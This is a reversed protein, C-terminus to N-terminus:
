YSWTGKYGLQLLYTSINNIKDKYKEYIIKREHYQNQIRELQKKYAPNINDKYKKIYMELNIIGKDNIDYINIENPPLCYNTFKKEKLNVNMLLVDNNYINFSHYSGNTKFELENKVDNFYPLTEIIPLMIKELVDQNYNAITFILNDISSFFLTLILKPNTEINHLIQIFSNLREEVQIKDTECKSIYEKLNDM